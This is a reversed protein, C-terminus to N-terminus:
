LLPEDRGTMERRIIRVPVLASGLFGDHFAQLSFRPGKAKRMDERLHLIMLKGLTYSYYGPDATGRRAEKYAMGPSQFCQQRMMTTADALSMGQTHMGFSALFRCDRLLADQLQMLRLRADGLGQEVMMQETYHAWGETTAYSSAAKRVLSWEPHASRYLGQTFHGPMVEHVTINLLAPRNLDRLLEETRAKTWTKEPPTVDYFATTAKTEFPGPWDMAAVLLSREFSPTDIVDPLAHSPLTVLKRALVYDQLGKLQAKVMPLLTEPRPHDARVEDLAHDPHAPDIERETALFATRDRDLQARGAAILSDIPLDVLDAALLARITDRGLAFTGSPKLHELYVGYRALAALTRRTEAKLRSQLAPDHVAAFAEPINGGVFQIAGELDARAIELYVAPVDGIQAEAQKLLAPIAAERALVNRLRDSAPAFDRSALSYLAGTALDVYQAPMRRFPRIKEELTLQGSIIGMLVERDDRQAQSLGSTELAALAAYERHLRAVQTARFADSVDDLRDDYTHIGAQTAGTPSAAWEAKYHAAELAELAAPGSLPGSSPPAASVPAACPVVSLMLLLLRHRRIKRFIM